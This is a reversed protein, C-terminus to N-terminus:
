LMPLCPKLGPYAACMSSLLTVNCSCAVCELLLLLLLLPLCAHIM